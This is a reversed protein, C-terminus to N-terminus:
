KYVPAKLVVTDNPFLPVNYGGSDIMTKSFLKKLKMWDAENIKTQYFSKYDNM